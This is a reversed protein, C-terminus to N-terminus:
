KRGNRNIDIDRKLTQVVEKDEPYEVYMLAAVLSTAKMTDLDTEVFKVFDTVNGTLSAIGYLESSISGLKLSKALLSQYDRLIEDRLAILEKKKSDYLM